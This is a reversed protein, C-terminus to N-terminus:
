QAAQEAEAQHTVQNAQEAAATNATDQQSDIAPAQEALNQNDNADYYGTPSAPAAPTGGHEQTHEAAAPKKEEKKGQDQQQCAALGLCAIAAIFLTSKM